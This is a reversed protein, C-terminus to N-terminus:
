PGGQHFNFNKKYKGIHVSMSFWFGPNQKFLIVVKSIIKLLKIMESRDLNSFNCIIDRAVFVLAGIQTTIIMRTPMPLPWTISSYQGDLIGLVYYVSPPKILHSRETTKIVVTLGGSLWM